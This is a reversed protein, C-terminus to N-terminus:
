DRTQKTVPGLIVAGGARVSDALGDNGASAIKWIDPLIQGVKGSAVIASSVM